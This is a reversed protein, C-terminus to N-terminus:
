HLTEGTTANGSLLARIVRTQVEIIDADSWAPDAKLREIFATLKTFPTPEDRCAELCQVACIAIKDFTRDTM